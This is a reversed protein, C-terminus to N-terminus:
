VVTCGGYLITVCAPICVKKTCFPFPLSPIFFFFLLVIFPLIYSLLIKDERRKEEREERTVSKSCQVTLLLLNM